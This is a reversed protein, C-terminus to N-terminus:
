RLAEFADSNHRTRRKCGVDNEAKMKTTQILALTRKFDITTYGLPFDTQDNTMTTMTTMMTSASTLSRTPSPPPPSKNNDLELVVYQLDNPSSCGVIMNHFEKEDQESPFTLPTRRWEATVAATSTAAAAAINAYGHHNCDIGAAAYNENNVVPNNTTAVNVYVPGGPTSKCVGNIQPPTMNEKNLNDNEGGASNIQQQHHHDIENNSHRDSDISTISQPPIPSVPTVPCSSTSGISELRFHRVGVARPELYNNGSESDSGHVASSVNSGCSRQISAQLLLFLMEAQECRFAFIGEGTPCRRGSEFSFVNTEYGYRRLTRIPWSISQKRKQHLLIFDDKIEIKGPLFESGDENLNVVKFVNPKKTSRSFLVGM